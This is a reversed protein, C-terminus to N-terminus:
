LNLNKCSRCLLLVGLPLSQDYQTGGRWSCRFTSNLNSDIQCRVLLVHLRNVDSFAVVFRGGWTVLDASNRPGLDLLCGLRCDTRSFCLKLSQRCPASGNVIYSSADLM